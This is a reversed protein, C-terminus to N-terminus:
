PSHSSAGGLGDLLLPADNMSTTKPEQVPTISAALWMNLGLVDQWLALVDLLTRFLDRDGFDRLLLDGDNLFDSSTTSIGSNKFASIEL